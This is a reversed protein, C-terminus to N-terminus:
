RTPLGRTDVPDLTHLHSLVQSPHEASPDVLSLDLASIWANVNDPESTRAQDVLVKAQPYQHLEMDLRARLLKVDTGPFMFDASKLLSATHQSDAPHGAVGTDLLNTAVDVEHAQRAGVVFWACVVIALVALGYRAARTGM